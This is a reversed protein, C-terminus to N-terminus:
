WLCYIKNPAPWAGVVLFDVHIVSKGRKKVRFTDRQDAYRLVRCLQPETQGLVKDAASVRPRYMKDVWM